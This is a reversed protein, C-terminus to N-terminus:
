AEKSCRQTNKHRYPSHRHASYYRRASNGYGRAANRFRREKCQYRRWGRTSQSRREILRVINNLAWIRATRRYRITGSIIPCLHNCSTKKKCKQPLGRISLRAFIADPPSVPCLRSSRLDMQPSKRSPCLYYTTMSRRPRVEAPLEKLAIHIRCALKIVILYGRRKRAVVKTSVVFTPDTFM